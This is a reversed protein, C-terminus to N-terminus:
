AKAEQQLLAITETVIGREITSMPEHQRVDHLFGEVVELDTRRQVRERYRRQAAATEPPRLEVHACHPWRERLRRMPELPRREDTLIARIWHQETGALSEDALLEDLSGTVTTLPREVTFGLWEINQLGNSDLDVLWGGREPSREGFSYHLPAGSYRVNDLLRQRSHIHGLAVYDVGSFHETSVVSKGGVTIDRPADDEVTEGTPTKGVFCHALVVSRAPATALSSRVGDMAWRLTGDATGLSPDDRDVRLANPELYPIGFFHVPGHEDELEVPDAPWQTLIHTGSSAVLPALFGLRAASDHNGSTAVIIAGADRIVQLAETLLTFHHAAPTSLDFVDGAILVVDVEHEGVLAAVEKLTKRLHETTDFGHFTRGVHWDSTHLLRMDKRYGHSSVGGRSFM